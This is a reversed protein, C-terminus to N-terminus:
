DTSIEDIGKELSRAISEPVFWCAILMYLAVITLRLSLSIHRIM